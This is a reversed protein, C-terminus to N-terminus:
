PPVPNGRLPNGFDMSGSQPPDKKVEVKEVKGVPIMTTMDDKKVIYEQTISNWGVMGAIVKGDVLTIKGEYLQPSQAQPKSTVCAGTVFALLCIMLITPIKNM